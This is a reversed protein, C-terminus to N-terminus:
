QFQVVRDSLLHTQNLCYKHQRACTFEMGVLWNWNSGNIMKHFIWNRSGNVFPFFTNKQGCRYLASTYIFSCHAILMTHRAFLYNWISRFFFFIGNLMNCASANSNLQYITNKRFNGNLDVSPCDNPRVNSKSFFLEIAFRFQFDMSHFFIISIITHNSNRDNFASYHWNDNTSHDSLQCLRM